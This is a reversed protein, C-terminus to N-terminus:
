CGKVRRVLERKNTGYEWDTCDLYGPASLRALYGSELVIVEVNEDFQPAKVHFGEPAYDRLSDIDSASAYGAPVYYTGDLTSVELAGAASEIEVQMFDSM